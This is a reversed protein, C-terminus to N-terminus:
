IEHWPITIETVNMRIRWEKPFYNNTRNGINKLWGLPLGNYKVLIWENKLQNLQLNERQLFRIADSLSLETEEFNLEESQSALALAPHPIPQDGKLVAVPTGVQIINLYKEFIAVLPLWEKEFRFITDGYQILNYNNKGSFWNTISGAMKQTVPLWKKPMVKINQRNGNANGKKRVMAMFFGEAKTRHPLTQYATIGHYDITHIGWEPAHPLEIFSAENNEALWQLNEENEAPNFTCTSYILHGGPKLCKWAEMIIRKQRAACLITNNVSWEGIAAADKRFLGEGSCPADVVVVDFYDNLNGFEKPDNNTVIINSYGWKQINELLIVARSRIVENSVLLDGRNLLSLLHTSKGGPAACMDLFLRNGNDPIQKIAQELLMSGPEQVYYAGAHFWPDLTFSPRNALYYGTSCWHVKELNIPKKWKVPNIRISLSADSQLAELFRDSEPGFQQEIRKVFDEPFKKM